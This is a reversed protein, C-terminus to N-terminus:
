AAGSSGEGLTPPYSSSKLSELEQEWAERQRALDSGTEPHFQYYYGSGPTRASGRVVLATLTPLGRDRCAQGVEGLARYLREDNRTVNNDPPDLPPLGKVLKDYTISPSETGVRKVLISYIAEGLPSM